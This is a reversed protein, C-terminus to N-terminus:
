SLAILRAESIFKKTDFVESILGKRYSEARCMWFHVDPEIAEALKRYRDQKKKDHLHYLFWYKEQERLLRDALRCIRILKKRMRLNEAKQSTM